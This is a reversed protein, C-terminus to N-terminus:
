LSSFVLVGRGNTLVVVLAGLAVEFRDGVRQFVDPSRELDCTIVQVRRRHLSL